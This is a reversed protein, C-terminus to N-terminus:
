PNGRLIEVRYLLHHNSHLGLVMRNHESPKASYAVNELTFFNTTEVMYTNFIGQKNTTVM